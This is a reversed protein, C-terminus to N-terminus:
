AADHEEQDPIIWPPAFPEVYDSGIDEGDVFARPGLLRASPRAPRTRAGAPARAETPAGDGDEANRPRLRRVKGRPRRRRPEDDDLDDPDPEVDDTAHARLRSAIGDLRDMIDAGATGPRFPQDGEGADVRRKLDARLALLEEPSKLLLEYRWPHADIRQRM